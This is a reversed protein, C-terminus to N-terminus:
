RQADWWARHAHTAMRAAERYRRDAHSMRGRVPIKSIAKVKTTAGDHSVLQLHREASSEGPVIIHDVARWPVYHTGSLLTRWRLGDAEIRVWRLRSTVMMLVALLLCIVAFVTLEVENGRRPGTAALSGALAGLVALGIGWGAYWLSIGCRFRETRTATTM